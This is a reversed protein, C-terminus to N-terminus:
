IRHAISGTGFELDKVVYLVDAENNRWAQSYLPNTNVHVESRHALIHGIGGWHATREFLENAREVRNM